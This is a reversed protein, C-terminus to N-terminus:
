GDDDELPVDDVFTITGSIEAEIKETPNYGARDLIDKAAQYQVMESKADLLQRMKRMAPEVADDLYQERIEQRLKKFEDTKKWRSLTVESINLEAAIERQTMETTVLLVVANELKKAM